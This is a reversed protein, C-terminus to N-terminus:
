PGVLVDRSTASTVSGFAQLLTARSNYPESMARYNEPDHIPEPENEPM